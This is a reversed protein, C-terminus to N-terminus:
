PFEFVGAVRTGWGELNAEVVGLGEQAHVFRGGGVLIGCHKAAVAGNLRFLVVRGAALGEARVLLRDAAAQLAGAFAVDRLDARYAPIAMPESGYIERWVGRVLGLCDCGAGLTSAQHRYPTGVWRRAELVIRDAAVSM